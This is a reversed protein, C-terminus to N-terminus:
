DQQRFFAARMFNFGGHVKLCEGRNWVLGLSPIIYIHSLSQMCVNMELQYFLLVFGIAHYRMFTDRTRERNYKTLCLRPLTVRAPTGTAINTINDKFLAVFYVNIKAWKISCLYMKVCIRIWHLEVFIVENRGSFFCASPIFVFVDHSAFFFFFPFFMVYLFTNLTCIFYWNRM